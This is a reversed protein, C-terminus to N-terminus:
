DDGLRDGITKVCVINTLVTLIVALVSWIVEM